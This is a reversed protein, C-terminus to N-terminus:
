AHAPEGGTQIQYLDRYLGNQRILSDHVGSQVIVGRDLVIIWDADRLASLRHAAIITTKQGRVRKLVRLIESETRTDVASLSDDLMLIKADSKILARAIATRQRQGGSLMIGREGIQTDIGEPMSEITQWIKSDQAAGQVADPIVDPQSFAINRGITTSFLFGDQPVYAILQRLDSLRM